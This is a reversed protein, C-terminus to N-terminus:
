LSLFIEIETNKRECSPASSSWRATLLECVPNAVGVLRYGSNCTYRASSEVDRSSVEVRGNPPDYLMSCQIGIYVTFLTKLLVREPVKLQRVNVLQPSPLGCVM